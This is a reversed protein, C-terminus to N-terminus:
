RWFADGGDSVAAYMGSNPQRLRDETEPLSPLIYGDEDLDASAILAVMQGRLQERQSRLALEHFTRELVYIMVGFAVLLLLTLCILLRQSVSRMGGLISRLAPALRGLTGTRLPLRPRAADRHAQ